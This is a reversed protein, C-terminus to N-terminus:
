TVLGVPSRRVPVASTRMGKRLDKDRFFSKEGTVIRPTLFLIIESNRTQIEEFRFLAGLLPVRCLLPVGKTIKNKEEEIMGAIIITVGNSVTVTTEAYSKKIIPVGSEGLALDTNRDYFTNASSVEPRVDVTIFGDQNIRPTVELIVGVPVFRYVKAVVNSTGAEYQLEAYPQDRVVKIIAEKGDLVAIHPNSLLKTDGVTQLAKIIVGIDVGSQITRYTLEAAGVLEPGGAFTSVAGLTSRPDLFDLKLDDWDVGLRHNNDLDVQVIKAEIFVQRSPVDFAEVVQVAKELGYPVDTVILTKTRTDSRVQGADKTLVDKVKPEMAEVEAYQLVFNTTITPRVREVTKIEQKEIVSAMEAVKEPTDILVLTGTQDDFVVRGAESKLQALLVQVRSPTAYQLQVIRVERREYFGEGYLSRYEADTMVKLINGKLEYALNNAALISELADGLTVDKLMLKTTGTVERGIVVNLDGKLAIFKILDVVDMAEILDLSIKKDLGALGLESLLRGKPAAPAAPTEPAPAEPAVTAPAKAASEPAAPKQPVAEQALGRAAFAAIVGAM